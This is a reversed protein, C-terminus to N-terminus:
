GNTAAGGCLMFAAGPRSELGGFRGALYRLVGSPVRQDLRSNEGKLSRVVLAIGANEQGAHVVSMGFANRLAGFSSGTIFIGVAAAIVHVSWLEVVEMPVNPQWERNTGLFTLAIRDKYGAALAAPTSQHPVFLSAGTDAMHGAPRAGKAGILGAPQTTGEASGKPRDVGSSAPSAVISKYAIEHKCYLTM